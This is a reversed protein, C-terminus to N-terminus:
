FRLKLAMQGIRPDGASRISGFGVSSITSVPDSYNVTNFSNFFEGRLQVTLAEGISFDKAVGMDWNFLGPGRVSDKGANGYKYPYTAYLDAPTGVAALPPAFAAPNFWTLCNVAGLCGDGGALGGVVV